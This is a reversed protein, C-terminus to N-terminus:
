LCKALCQFFLFFLFETGLKVYRLPRTSINSLLVLIVAFLPLTLNNTNSPILPSTAYPASDHSRPNSSSPPPLTSNRQNLLLSAPLSVKHFVFMNWTMCTQFFKISKSFELIWYEQHFSTHSKSDLIFFSTSHAM